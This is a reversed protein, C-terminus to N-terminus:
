GESQSACRRIGSIVQRRSQRLCVAEHAGEGVASHAREPVVPSLIYVLLLNGQM